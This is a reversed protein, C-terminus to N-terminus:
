SVQDIDLLAQNHHNQAAKFAAWSASALRLLLLFLLDSHTSFRGLSLSLLVGSIGGQLGTVVLVTEKVMQNGTTLYFDDITPLLLACFDPTQKTLHCGAFPLSIGVLSGRAQQRLIGKKVRHV